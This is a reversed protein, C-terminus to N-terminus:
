NNLMYQLLWNDESPRSKIKLSVSNGYCCWDEQNDPNSIFGASIIDEKHPWVESHKMTAGFIIMKDCSGDRIVIYKLAM